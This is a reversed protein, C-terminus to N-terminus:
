ILLTPEYIYSVLLGDLEEIEAINLRRIRRNIDNCRILEKRDLWMMLALKESYHMMYIVLHWRRCSKNGTREQLCDRIHIALKDRDKQVSPSLQAPRTLPLPFQSPCHGDIIYEMVPSVVQVWAQATSWDCSDPIKPRGHKRVEGQIQANTMNQFILVLHVAFVKPM